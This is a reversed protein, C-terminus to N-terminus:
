ALKLLKRTLWEISLLGVIVLLLTSVKLPPDWSELTFGSDWVDKVPGRTRATKSDTVMCDPIMEAAKLDFYLKLSEKEEVTDKVPMKNTRELVARLRAKGDENNIRAMVGDDAKSALDRLFPFDPMSNDLEPNADKVEFKRTLIDATGPIQLQLEYNGAAMVLFRGEFWGTSEAGQGAKPRLEFKNPNMTVGAPPKVQFVPKATKELPQMDRNFLRAQLTVPNQAVFKSGMYIDGRRNQRTLNGSGAYRAMKTWFREHYIERCQRLRWMEGSGIYAVQGSGYPMTVLFPQEKGDTLRSRPDTFTAVVTANAKAGKTPYYNFFGHRPIVDKVGDNKQRGTFFEEWGSLPEKSEEDLKLFEMEATAGPFNLRWPDSTPREVGLGQLRYDDLYVPFLDLIPKVNEYNVGRALQFTNVPGAVLILGGAHASVWQELLKLQDLTLLTWDPDFGIIVDYQALNDFKTEATEKPDDEARLSGPFRQLLREQPVDQVVEPRALQLYISVEARKKDVERVFLTRAFQYEHTPAGAFLLIRLPKKVVQVSATESVHEKVDKTERKDKPVRAFMKWEGELEPKDIEFEVQVHPPEGPKFVPMEGMPLNPKLSIKDGNPNTIELSADVPQGALGEGEIDLRVPFKDDPRAQDPAQLSAIRINIPQRYDGVGVTFIPVKAKATRIRLEELTQNSIQTNRGDSFVIIGQLMNNSERNFASLISDGLNTAKMIEGLTTRRATIKNREEESLEAAIEEQLDPKLWRNWEEAGLVKEHALVKYEEDLQGGFRYVTVPNKEQLKALFGKQEDTMFRIVQDQRSSLDSPANDQNDMSKSIDWLLLLKSVSKTKDWTQWSPLLFVFALILYVLIRIGGLFSAWGPGVTVRERSYMWMVYALGLLLVPILIAWWLRPDIEKGGIHLAENLRRFVFETEQLTNTENDM